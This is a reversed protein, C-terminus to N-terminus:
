EDDEKPFLRPLIRIRYGKETRMIGVLVPPFGISFAEVKIGSLKAFIFHGLEHILVVAGFGLVVLLVNGFISINRAVLYIVAAFVIVFLFIRFYRNLLVKAKSM